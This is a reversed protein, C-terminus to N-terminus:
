RAASARMRAREYDDPTDIDFLQDPPFELVITEARHRELVQRAGHELTALEPFLDRAFLHPPATVGGYRVSVIRPRERRYVELLRRYQSPPVFPQDALAFMAAESTGLGGVATRFSSGMGTAYETNVVLRCDLGTLAVGVQEHAHGLVVLVSDFGAECVQRVTRRVLAEGGLPLLLKPEGMRRSGGAALVVAAVSSADTM